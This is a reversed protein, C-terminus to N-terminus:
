EVKQWIDSDKKTNLIVDRTTLFLSLKDISENQLKAKAYYAIHKQINESHCVFLVVPLPSNKTNEQWKLSQAYALYQKVKKRYVFAPTYPDFINLFYSRTKRGNKVFIYGDLETDPLYDYGTLDTRTFFQIVEKEEKQSQIFLSM